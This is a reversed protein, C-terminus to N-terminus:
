QIAKDRPSNDSEVALFFKLQVCSANEEGQVKTGLRNLHERAKESLYTLVPIFLANVM